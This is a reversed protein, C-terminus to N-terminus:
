FVDSLMLPTSLNVFGTNRCRLSAAQSVTESSRRRDRLVQSSNDGGVTLQVTAQTVRTWERLCQSSCGGCQGRCGGFQDAAQTVRAGERLCQDTCASLQDAAHTVRTGDRLCQDSSSEVSDAAECKSGAGERLHLSSCPELPDAEM